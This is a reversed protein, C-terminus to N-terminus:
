PRGGGTAIILNGFADIRGCVGPPIWTTTDMQEIIAPGAVLNGALLRDRRLIKTNVRKPGGDLECIVLREATEAEAPPIASGVAIRHPEVPPIRGVGVVRFNVLEVAKEPFTVGYRRLHEDHFAQALAEAFTADIRGLPAATRLEYGQGAYRCDAFRLFVTRESPFGDVTLQARARDALEAEACAVAELSSMGITAMLTRSFEYSVDSTLLGLASTLGPLPPVVVTPVALDRAVDVAFLPGAGGFAVLAFDRPDYGRRVSNIEIAQVMSHNLIRLAGLAAAEVSLGLPKALRKEIAVEAGKPDLTLRGGLFGTPSIRGLVLECDTATPETGGRGYCCPGPDAGASRPGMQFQGGADIYAISGGGAGISDVEAMPMMAHYDGIRTDLLHKFQMAGDPAVGIDASTGGVDLSIVSQFGANKGIWIGGLLGGVPGSMLLTVPRESAAELTASGGSSQMLHLGAKLGRSRLATDFRRLYHITRPGVFANLCTTSFREYERYHPIVEHSACVFLDPAEERVIKIARREHVPNLFSFMFCVAIAEVGDAVLQAAARRVASEDLPMLVAGDPGAIREQVTLRHRRRVLPHSQWPLDLQLSFNKPRKHRAIHLIDRFGHTTILGVRAGNHELIINTAITTGHMFYDLEGVSWDKDRCLEELAAMAAASPDKASTPLKVVAIAGSADDIAVLDTHTGGVDVGVRKM